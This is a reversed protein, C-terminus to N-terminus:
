GEKIELGELLKSPTMELAKALKFLLNLTMGTNKEHNWLLRITKEDCKAARAFSRNNGGFKIQFQNYIRTIVEKRLDDLENHM